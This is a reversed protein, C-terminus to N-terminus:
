GFVNVDLQHTAKPKSLAWWIGKEIVEDHKACASLADGFRRFGHPVGKFLTVDTPVGAEALTKAYLLGEDRLPDLGAIGFVTPPMGKVEDPTANGPNLKPDKLDPIGSQLLNMFYEVVRRPLIPANENEKYSSIDPSAMRTLPGDAYTDVNNLAPIILVQGAIDPLGNLAKDLHKELVLSATLHAGASIGGVVVRTPDGGIAEINDHLFKFADHSDNWAVPFSYDPTHRYNVNFVVIGAKIAHNSCSKDESDLTGLLFGGGHFYLYVPLKENKSKIVPRYSRAKISSGDRTPIMFDQTHVSSALEEMGQRSVLEREDNMAKQLIKPDLSTDFALSPLNAEVKLWETSAGGYHSFDCM